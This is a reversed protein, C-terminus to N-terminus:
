FPADDDWDPDLAALFPDIPESESPSDFLDIQTAKHTTAANEASKRMEEAKRVSRIHIKATKKTANGETRQRIRDGDKKSETFEGPNYCDIHEAYGCYTKLMHSFIRPSMNRDGTERCYDALVDDYNETVDLHESGEQYYDAAWDEFNKGIIARQTRLQINGMPPMIKREAVPLSLYFQLCQMAFALDAQWKDEPYDNGLLNYGFDDHISRNERYNNNQAMAHYYDGFVQPWLRAETSSDLKKIVYNTGFAMKPAKDSPIEFPHGGKEEGRFPGTIKGFFYSYSLKRACEDVIVLDTAETVGDFLFKDKVIEPNRADIFFYHVLAMLYKFFFSKGSRGNCEKEDEALFADQLIAALTLSDNRYRHLYYGICSLKAALCQEEEHQQEPTLPIGDEDVQRWYLRSAHHLYTL